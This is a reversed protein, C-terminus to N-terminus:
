GRGRVVLPLFQRFETGDQSTAHLRLQWNGPPLDLAARYDQGGFLLDLPRDEGERTALGVVVNLDSVYVPHGAPGTISLIVEGGEFRATTRWNLLEQAARRKDFNLSDAYTHKVEVGPFSGLAYYLLAMNAAIITAFGGLFIAAVKRGTLPGSFLSM